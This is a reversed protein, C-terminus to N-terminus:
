DNDNKWHRIAHCNSCLLVISGPCQKEADMLVRYYKATYGRTRHEKGDGNVHHFQFVREDSIGCDKCLGGLHSILERRAERMKIRHRRAAQRNCHERNDQVYRKQYALLTAAHDKRWQKQKEKDKYPM